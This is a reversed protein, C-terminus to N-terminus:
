AHRARDRVREADKAWMEPLAAHPRGMSESFPPNDMVLQSLCVLAFDESLGPSERVDDWCDALFEDFAQGTNASNYFRRLPEATTRFQLETM